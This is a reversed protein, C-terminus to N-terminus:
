YDFQDSVQPRMLPKLWSLQLRGKVHILMVLQALALLHIQLLLSLMTPTSDMAEVDHITGINLCNILFLPASSPPLATAQLHPRLRTPLHLRPHPQIPHHHHLPQLVNARAVLGVTPLQPAVGGMNVVAYATQVYLEVPRIDVNNLLPQEL